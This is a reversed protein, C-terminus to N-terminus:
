VVVIFSVEMRSFDKWTWKSFSNRCNITEQCYVKTNTVAYLSKTINLNWKSFKTSARKFFLPLQSSVLYPSMKCECQKHEFQQHIHLPATSPYFFNALSLCCNVFSLSLAQLSDLPINDNSSLTSNRCLSAIVERSQTQVADADRRRYASRQM